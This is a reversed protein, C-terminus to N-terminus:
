PTFFFNYNYNYDSVLMQHDIITVKTTMGYLDIVGWVTQPVNTTAIGQDLGNIFYHLDGNSHRILGVRDGNKLEDLNFQGYERRSGKGNILIGCGSMM